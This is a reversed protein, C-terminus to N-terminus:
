RLLIMKKTQNFNGAQIRYLYIGSALGSADFNIEYRGADKDEDVLTAIENGLVDYIKLTLWSGVPLQWSIKTTPNFPNPYNQALEFNEPTLSKTQDVSLPELTIQYNIVEGNALYGELAVGGGKGSDEVSVMVYYDEGLGTLKLNIPEQVSGFVWGRGDTNGFWISNPIETLSGTSNTFGLRNGNGDTIILEVPDSIVNLVNSIDAGSGTSISNESFPVKLIELISSQVNVMSVLGTHDGSSFPLKNARNDILFQGASSITPVTADGNGSISIDKYWVTGPLANRPAWDTFSQFANFEFDTRKQVQSSTSEGTGYVVTVNASDLFGNPDNLPNIDFGNNLDLVITNRIEIDNNVNTLGSGFDIFDYTALLYRLTPVYKNIFKTKSPNGLSDLIDSKTINYDPGSITQNQLVKQYASNIIKSLVFRYIYDSIWNDNIPNWAKSAGRNPVGIMVFNRIKPLKYDNSIDYVDGYANSQIYTRTVLGGTSHAIVDISDLERDYDQRWRECAQKIYWGLYDVGYNFQGSTISAGSLGDIHGDINNDIPGPTLRWDYNVVFLDKGQEYGLNEFTTIMDTYVKGLPDVQMLNPNIGRTMIWGLDYGTDAAYTGAIGPVIFVPYRIGPYKITVIDTTSIGKSRGTVYVNGLDDVAMSYAADSGNGTGNYSHLWKQNGDTDYKITTYDASTVTGNLETSAGTVYVNGLPDLGISLAGAGSKGHYTRVWQEVGEPSYKITAYDTATGSERSSGTVYVNGSNDVAVASAGNTGTLPGHYTRVWLQAGGSSYKITLYDPGTRGAVIVNGGADLAISACGEYYTGSDYFKVWEQVGASNYKITVADSFNGNFETSGTVYVNGSTDVAIARGVDSYSGPGNYRNEWVLIGTSSYKITVIDATEFNDNGESGGTVFVSGFKDVAIAWLEDDENTTGNYTRVWQENGENDYKIILYDVNNNSIELIGGVYISGFDDLALVPYFGAHYRVWLMVGSADYKITVISFETDTRFSGAIIVNGSNDVAVSSGGNTSYNSPGDFRTVWEPEIQSYSFQTSILLTLYILKAKM